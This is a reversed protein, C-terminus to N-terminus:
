QTGHVGLPFPLSPFPEQHLQQYFGVERCGEEGQTPSFEESVQNKAEWKKKSGGERGRRKERGAEGHRNNYLPLVAEGVFSFVSTFCFRVDAVMLELWGSPYGRNIAECM